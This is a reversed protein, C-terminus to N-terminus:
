HFGSNEVALFWFNIEKLNICSCVQMWCMFLDNGEGGEWRRRRRRRWKMATTKEESVWLVCLTSSTVDTCDFSFNIKLSRDRNIQSRREEERKRRTWCTWVFSKSSLIVDISRSKMSFSAIKMEDGHVIVSCLCFNFTKSHNENNKMKKDKERWLKMSYVRVYFNLLFFWEIEM